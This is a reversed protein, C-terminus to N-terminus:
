EAVNAVSEIIPVLSIEDEEPVILVIIQAYIITLETTNDHGQISSDGVAQSSSAWDCIFHGPFRLLDKLSQQSSMEVKLLRM